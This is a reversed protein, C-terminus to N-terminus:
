KASRPRWTSSARCTDNAAMLSLRSLPSISPACASYLLGRATAVPIAPDPVKSMLIAISSLALPCDIVSLFSKTLAPYALRAAALASSSLPGTVM